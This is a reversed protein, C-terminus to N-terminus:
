LLSNQSIPLGGLGTEVCVPSDGPPSTIRNALNPQPKYRTLPWGARSTFGGNPREEARQEVACM